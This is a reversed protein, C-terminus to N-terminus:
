YIISRVVFPTPVSVEMSDVQDFDLTRPQNIFLRVNKPGNEAPGEIKISHLKINQSFALNIILQDDCDSELYLSSGGQLCNVMPHDDSENLCECESKQIMSTLDIHGPVGSDAGLGGGGSAAGSAESGEGASAASVDGILERIKAELGTPDAGQLKAVKVRNRYFIFTPM